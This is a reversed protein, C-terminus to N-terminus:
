VSGGNSVYRQLNDNLNGPLIGPDNLVVVAYNALNATAGVEPRQVDMIFAADTNSDLAARFYLQGKPRRGDDLFLIKKPDAREVSFPFRDDAALADASDIRIEGRNFGYSADLGLFEVSARGNAPVDISTRAATRPFM